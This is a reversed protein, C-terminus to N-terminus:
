LFASGNGRREEMGEGKGGGGGEGLKVWWGMGRGYVFVSVRVLFKILIRIHTGRQLPGTMGYRAM